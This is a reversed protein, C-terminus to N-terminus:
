EFNKFKILMKNLETPSIKNEKISNLYEIKNKGLYSKFRNLHINIGEIEYNEGENTEKSCLICNDEDYRTGRYARPFYHCVQIQNEPVWKNLLPCYYNGYIDKVAKNLLYKRFATDLKQIITAM